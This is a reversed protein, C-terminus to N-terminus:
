ADKKSKIYEIQPFLIQYARAVATKSYYVPVGCSKAKLTRELDKASLETPKFDTRAIIYLKGKGKDKYDAFIESLAKNLLEFAVLPYTKNLSDILEIVYSPKKGTKEAIHALVTEITIADIDFDSGNSALPVRSVIGRKVFDEINDETITVEEEIEIHGFPFKKKTKEIISDGFEVEEGTSTFIYKKKCM